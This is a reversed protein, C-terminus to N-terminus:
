AVFPCTDEHGVTIYDKYGGPPSLSNEKLRFCNPTKDNFEPEHGGCISCVPHWHMPVQDGMSMGECGSRGAWEAKAFRKRDDM